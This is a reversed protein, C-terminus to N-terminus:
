LLMLNKISFLNEDLEESNKIFKFERDFLNNHCNGFPTIFTNDNELIIFFNCVPIILKDFKNTELLTPFMKSNNTIYVILSTNLESFQSNNGNMLNNIMSSILNITKLEINLKLGNTTVYSYVRLIISYFYINLDDISIKKSLPIMVEFNDIITSKFNNKFQPKRIKCIIENYIEGEIKGLKKECCNCLIYDVVYHHEESININREDLRNSEFSKPNAKGLFLNIKKNKIDIKYSEEYERKGICDKILNAPVIHSGTANASSGCIICKKDAINEMFLLKSM